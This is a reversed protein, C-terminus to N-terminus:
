MYLILASHRFTNIEKIIAENTMLFLKTNKKFKQRLRSACIYRRSSFKRIHSSILVTSNTLKQNSSMCAELRIGELKYGICIHLMAYM